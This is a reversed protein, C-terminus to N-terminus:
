SVTEVFGASASNLVADFDDDERYSVVKKKKKPGKSVDQVEKLKRKSKAKERVLYKLLKEEVREDKGDQCINSLEKRLDARTKKLSRLRDAALAHQLTSDNPMGREIVKDDEDKGGHKETDHEEDKGRSKTQEVASAVADIEYEIARLKNLLEM